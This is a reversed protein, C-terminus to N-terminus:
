SFRYRELVVLILLALIFVIAMPVVNFWGGSLLGFVAPGFMAGHGGVILGPSFGVAVAFAKLLATHFPTKLRNAWMWLAVLVVVNAAVYALIFLEFTTM